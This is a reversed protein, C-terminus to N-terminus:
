IRSLPGRSGQMSRKGWLWSFEEKFRECLAIIADKEAATVTDLEGMDQEAEITDDIFNRIKVLRLDNSDLM